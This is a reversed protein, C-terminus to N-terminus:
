RSFIFRFLFKFFRMTDRFPRINSVEDRYVSSIPISKIKLKKRAAALIMESEIEYRDSYLILNKLARRTLARYGCQTDPIKQGAIASILGSMGRNTLRRLLPMGKPDGMRNGVVLDAEGSNLASLFHELEDPDHQGDSDMVIVAEFNNRLVWDFGKRIAAGKGQNVPSLIHQAKSSRLISATNDTSGDDVAIVPFGRSILGEIVRGINKEENYAPVLVCVASKEIM